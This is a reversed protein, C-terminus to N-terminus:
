KKKGHKKNSSRRGGRMTGTKRKTGMASFTAIGIVVVFFLIVGAVLVVLFWGPM